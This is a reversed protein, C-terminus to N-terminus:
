SSNRDSMSGTIQKRLRDLELVSSSREIQLVMDNLEKQGKVWENLSGIAMTQAAHLQEIDHVRQRLRENERGKRWAFYVIGACVVLFGIAIGM